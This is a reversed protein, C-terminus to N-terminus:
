RERWDTGHKAREGTSHQLKIKHALREGILAQKAENGHQLKIKHALREGILATNREDMLATSGASRTDGDTSHLQDKSHQLQDREGIM